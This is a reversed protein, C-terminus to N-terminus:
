MHNSYIVIPIGIGYDYEGSMIKIPAKIPASLYPLWCRTVTRSSTRCIHDGVIGLQVMQGIAMDAMAAMAVMSSQRRPRTRHMQHLLELTSTVRGDSKVLYLSKLEPIFQIFQYQLEPLFTRTTNKPTDHQMEKKCAACQPMPRAHPRCGVVTVNLEAMVLLAHSAM